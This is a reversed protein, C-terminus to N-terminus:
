VLYSAGASLSVLRWYNNVQSCVAFIANKAVHTGLIKLCVEHDQQIVIDEDMAQLM